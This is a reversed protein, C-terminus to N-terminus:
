NTKDKVWIEVRRNVARGSAIENCALPSTEGYGVVSLVINDLTGAPLTALIADRVQGARALSTERNKSMSGESDTFGAIILEKGDYSGNALIKVLRAIDAKAREDLDIPDASFRFTVSLRQALVLNSMMAQLQELTTDSLAPMIATAFRSGQQGVPTSEILQDVFGADAVDYQADDSEVYALFSDVNALTSGAPKVLLIRRSLPYEETKITFPTASTEIGCIGLIPVVRANRAAALSVIGIANADGAVADAIEEDTQLITAEDSLEAIFADMVIQDFADRTGSLPERMYMKIPGTPLGLDAWDAIGGSFIAALDQESISRLPNEAAVVPVLADLALIIQEVSGLSLTEADSLPRSLVALNAIGDAVDQVGGASGPMRISVTAAEGSGESTLTLDIQGANGATRIATANQATAFAEVLNPLLTSGITKSGSVTFDAAVREDKPCDAGICDVQYADVSVEGIASRITFSEGDFGVLEGTMSMSGDHSKLTVVGAVASSIGFLSALVLAPFIKKM